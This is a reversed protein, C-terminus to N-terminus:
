RVDRRQLRCRILLDNLATSGQPLDPLSSADSAEKMVAELRQRESEHFTIDADPLWARNVLNFRYEKGEPRTALVWAQTNTINLINLQQAFNSEWHYGLRTQATTLNTNYARIFSIGLIEKIDYEFFWKNGTSINIPNTSSLCAKGNDKKPVDCSANNSNYVQPLACVNQCLIAPDSASGLNVAVRGSTNSPCIYLISLPVLQPSGYLAGNYYYQFKCYNGPNGYSDMSSRGLNVTAFSNGGANNAITQHFLAVDVCLAATGLEQYNNWAYYLQASTYDSYAPSITFILLFFILYKKMTKVMVKNKNMM